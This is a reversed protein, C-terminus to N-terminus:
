RVGASPLKARLEGKISPSRLHIWFQNGDQLSLCVVPYMIVRSTDKHSITVTWFEMKKPEMQTVVEVFKQQTEANRLFPVTQKYADRIRPMKNKHAEEEYTMIVVTLFNSPSLVIRTEFRPEREDGM